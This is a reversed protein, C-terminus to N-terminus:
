TRQRTPVYTHIYTYIYREGEERLVGKLFCYEDVGDDESLVNHTQRHLVGEARCGPKIRAMMVKYASNSKTVVVMPNPGYGPRDQHYQGARAKVYRVSDVELYEADPVRLEVAITRAISTVLSRIFVAGPMDSNRIYDNIRRLPPDSWPYALMNDQAEKMNTKFSPHENASIEYFVMPGFKKINAKLKKLPKLAGASLSGHPIGPIQTFLTDLRDDPEPETNDYEIKSGTKKYHTFESRFTTKELLANESDM